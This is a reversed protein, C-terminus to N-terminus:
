AGSSGVPNRTCPESRAGRGRSSAALVTVRPEVGVDRRRARAAASARRRARVVGAQPDVDPGDVIGSSIAASAAAPTSAIM